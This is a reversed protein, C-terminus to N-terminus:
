GYKNEVISPNRILVGLMKEVRKHNHSFSHTTDMGAGIWADTNTGYRPLAFLCNSISSRLLLM